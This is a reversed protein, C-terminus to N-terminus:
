SSSRVSRIFSRCMWIGPNHPGFCWPRGNRAHNRQSVSFPTWEAYMHIYVATSLCRGENRNAMTIRPMLKEQCYTKFSDRILREDETLQSELNLPDRWDFTVLAVCWPWDLSLRQLGPIVIVKRLQSPKPKRKPQLAARFGSVDWISPDSSPFLLVCDPHWELLCFTQWTLAGLVLM